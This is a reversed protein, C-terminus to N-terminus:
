PCKIALTPWSTYKINPKNENLIQQSGVQPKEINYLSTYAMKELIFIINLSLALVIKPLTFHSSKLASSSLAFKSSSKPNSYIQIEIYGM